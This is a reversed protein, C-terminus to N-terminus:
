AKNMISVQCTGVMITRALVRLREDTQAEAMDFDFCIEGGASVPLVHEFLNANNAANRWQINFASAVTSGACIMLRYTGQPLAGTDVLIDNAAPNVKVGESFWNPNNLPM